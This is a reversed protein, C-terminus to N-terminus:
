SEGGGGGLGHKEPGRPPLPTFSLSVRVREVSFSPELQSLLAEEHHARTVVSVVYALTRDRDPAEKRDQTPHPTKPDTSILCTAEEIAKQIRADM